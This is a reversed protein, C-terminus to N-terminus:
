VSTSLVLSYLLNRVYGVSTCDATIQECVTATIKTLKESSNNINVKIKNKGNHLHKNLNTLPVIKYSARLCEM